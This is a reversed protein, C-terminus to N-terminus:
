KVLYLPKITDEDIILDIRKIDTSPTIALPTSPTTTVEIITGGITEISYKCSFKTDIVTKVGIELKISESSGQEITM